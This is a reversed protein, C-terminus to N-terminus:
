GLLHIKINLCTAEGVINKYVCSCLNQLSFSLSSYNLHTQFRQSIALDACHKLESLFLFFPKCLWNYSVFFNLPILLPNKSFLKLLLSPFYLPTYFCDISRHWQEASPLKPPFDHACSISLPICSVTLSYWLYLRNYPPPHIHVSFSAITECSSAGWWSRVEELYFVCDCTWVKFIPLGLGDQFVWVMYTFILLNSTRVSKKLKVCFRALDLRFSDYNIFHGQLISRYALRRLLKQTGSQHWLALDLLPPAM